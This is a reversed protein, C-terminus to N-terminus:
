LALMAGILFELMGEDKSWVRRTSFYVAELGSSLM